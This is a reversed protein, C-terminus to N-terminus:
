KRGVAGLALTFVVMSALCALVELPVTIRESVWSERVHAVYGELGYYDQRLGYFASNGWVGCLYAAIVARKPSM